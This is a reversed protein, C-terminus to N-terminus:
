VYQVSSISVSGLVTKVVGIISVYVGQLSMTEVGWDMKVLILIPRLHTIPKGMRQPRCRHFSRIM